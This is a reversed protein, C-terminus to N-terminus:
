GSNANTKVEQGPATNIQILTPPNAQFGPKSNGRKKAEILARTVAAKNTQDSMMRLSDILRFYTDWWWKRDEDSLDDRMLYKQEISEAMLMLKLGSQIMGGHVLTLTKSFHQGAFEEISSLKDIEALKFGLKQLSKNLEKNPGVSLLLSEQRALGGARIEDQTKVSPSGPEHRHALRPNDSAVPVAFDDDKKIWTARLQPHRSIAQSLQIYAVGLFAAAKGRDGDAARMALDIKAMDDPTLRLM